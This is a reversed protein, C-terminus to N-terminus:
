QFLTSCSFCSNVGKAQLINILDQLFTDLGDDGIRELFNSCVVIEKAM